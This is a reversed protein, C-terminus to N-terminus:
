DCRQELSPDSCVNTTRCCWSARDGCPEGFLRGLVVHIVKSQRHGSRDAVEVGLDGERCVICCPDENRQMVTIDVITVEQGSTHVEFNRGPTDWGALIVGQRSYWTIPESAVPNVDEGRVSVPWNWLNEPMPRAPITQGESFPWFTGSEGVAGIELAAYLAPAEIEHCGIVAM